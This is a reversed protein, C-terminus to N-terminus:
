VEIGLNEYIEDLPIMACAINEDAVGYYVYVINQKVVAGCSFVVKGFFGRTEYSEQPYLLPVTSRKLVISPNDKKLLLAALSYEDDRNGSHYIEIWGYKTLFPVASAGLRHNDFADKRKGVLQEHKGWHILDKSQAIWIELRGYDSCSPRHLAYYNGKIKNPFLVIDKNDSTFCIGM